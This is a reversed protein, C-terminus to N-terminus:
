QMQGTLRAEKHDLLAEVKAKLQIKKEPPSKSILSRLNRIHRDIESIDLKDLANMDITKHSSKLRRMTIVRPQKDLPPRQLTQDEFVKIEDGLLVLDPHDEFESQSIEMFIEKVLDQAEKVIFEAQSILLEKESITSM